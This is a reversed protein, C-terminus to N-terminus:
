RGIVGRHKLFTSAYLIADICHDNGDQPKDTFTDADHPSPLWSYTSVEKHINDGVYKVRFGQLYGIRGTKDRNEGNVANVSFYSRLQDRNDPRAPDCYCLCEAASMGISRADDVIVRGVDPVLMGSKCAIEKVYLTGSAPDYACRVLANPDGSYGWDNGWWQQLGLPFESEAIREWHQFILGKKRVRWKGLFVNEYKEYDTLKMAEARDLFAQDLHKNIRYTTHIYHTDGITLTSDPVLAGIGAKTFFRRYIWHSIDSPNLILWIQAHVGEKRLSLDITDFTSESHLEEAEDLVWIKLNPISKLRATQSKSGQMIGRFLIRGGTLNNTISDRKVDFYPTRNLIDIKETFEPIISVEASVMTYRTFLIDNSDMMTHQQLACSSHFSKASGRGGIVVVYRVSRPLNDPLLGNYIDLYEIDM